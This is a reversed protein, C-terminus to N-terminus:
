ARFREHEHWRLAERDPQRFADEPVAIASGDLAYYTRGNKYETRLRSSVRFRLDPTVTVYGRDFLRHLDSRLLLGNSVEHQGGEAYPRIHAAELVPLSHERTVACAGGYADRVAMSFTGQGLRPRVLMPEGYRARQDAPVEANWYRGDRRARDLCEVWVRAGEGASVDYVKGTQIGTPSWDTPPAVWEQQDFFVPATLMVCGIDFNGSAPAGDARLRVIREIFEEFTAAGNTQGFCEWALWAPM